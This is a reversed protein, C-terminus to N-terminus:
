QSEVAVGVTFHGAASIATPKSSQSHSHTKISLALGSRQGSKKELAEKIVKDESYLKKGTDPHKLYQM